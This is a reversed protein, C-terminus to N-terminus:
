RVVEEAQGEQVTLGLTLSLTQGPELFLEKQFLVALQQYTRELGGESESVTEVPTALLGGPSSSDLRIRLSRWSDQFVRSTVNKEEHGQATDPTGISFNFESAFIFRFPVHGPNKFFYRVQVGGDGDPLVQKQVRLAKDETGLRLIGRREFNLVGDRRM